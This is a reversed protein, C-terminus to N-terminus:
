WYGNLVFLGDVEKVDLVTEGSIKFPHAANAEPNLSWLAAMSGADMSFLSM